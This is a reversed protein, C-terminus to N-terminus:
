AAGSPDPLIFPLDTDGTREGARTILAHAQGRHHTQHNFFHTVVMAAPKTMDRGMAGSFWSLDGSLWEPAVAETWRAIRGDVAARKAWLADWDPIMRGSDKIGVAPKEGGDFRAMWQIDGWVLHSLTGHLSGWFAGRDAHREADPIRAAAVYLRRNMESNYAAMMRCWAPTIM